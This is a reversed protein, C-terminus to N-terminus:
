PTLRRAVFVLAATALLAFAAAFPAVERFGAGFALMGNVAEM